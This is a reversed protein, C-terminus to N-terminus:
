ENFISNVTIKCPMKYYRIPIKHNTKEIQEKPNKSNDDMKSGEGNLEDFEEGFYNLIFKRRSM